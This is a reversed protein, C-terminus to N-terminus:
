GGAARPSPRNGDRVSAALEHAGAPHLSLPGGVGPRPVLHFIRPKSRRLSSLLRDQWGYKRRFDEEVTRVTAEDSVREAHVPIEEKGIRVAVDPRSAANDGWHTDGTRVYAEGRVVVLWVTTERTSGDEDTTIVTVTSKAAYRSWDIVGASPGAFAISSPLLLGLALAASLLSPLTPLPRGALRDEERM